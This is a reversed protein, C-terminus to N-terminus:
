MGKKPDFEIHIPETPATHYEEWIVRQVDNTPQPAWGEQCAKRYSVLVYPTVGVSPLYNEFRQMVDVPLKEDVHKDLDKVGAVGLMLSNPYQSVAAGCLYGFGRTLSKKVRAKFFAQKDTKLPAVNVMAWKAEPAVLSMPLEACDVVFLSLEGQITPKALDFKGEAVEISVKLEKAFFDAHEKLVEVPIATQCNVYVIKGKQVDPVKIKGGTRNYIAADLRARDIKKGSHSEEAYILTSCVAAIALILKKM